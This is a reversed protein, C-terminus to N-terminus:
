ITFNSLTRNAKWLITGEPRIKFCYWEVGIVVGWSPVRTQYQMEENQPAYLTIGMLSPLFKPCYIAM